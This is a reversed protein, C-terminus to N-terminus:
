RTKAQRAWRSILPHDLLSRTVDPIAPAANITLLKRKTTYYEKIPETALRYIRLRENNKEPTADEPREVLPHQCHLCLGDDPFYGRISYLHGNACTRRTALRLAAEEDSLSFQIALTPPAFQELTHAQSTRRPYGDLIWGSQCDSANLREQLIEEVEEDSVLKGSNMTDRIKQGLPSNAAMAARLMDGTSLHPILLRHFLISGQTGKGSGPPGFLVIRPLLELEM